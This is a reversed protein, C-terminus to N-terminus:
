KKINYGKEIEKGLNVFAIALIAILAGPSLVWWWMGKLIAGEKYAEALFSGWNSGWGPLINFFGLLSIFVLIKPINISISAITFPYLHPLIHKTIIRKTSAGLGRAVTIYESTKIHLTMSRATKAYLPWTLLSLILSFKLLSIEMVYGKLSTSFYWILFIFTPLIPFAMVLTAIGQMVADLKGGVYGSIVGYIMGFFVSLVSAFFIIILTNKSSYLLEYFVNKGSTDTGLLGYINGMVTIKQKDITTNDFMYIEVLIKYVGKEIFLVPMPDFFEYTISRDTRSYIIRKGLSGFKYKKVEYGEITAASSYISDGRYIEIKEDKIVQIIVLPYQEDIKTWLELVLDQPPIDYKYDYEFTYSIKKVGENSEKVEMPKLTEQKTRDNFTFINTWQPPVGKPVDVFYAINDKNEMYEKPIIVPTLMVIALFIILIAVSVRMMKM